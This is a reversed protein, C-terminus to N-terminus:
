SDLAAEQQLLQRLQKVRQPEQQSLERQEYPDDNLNFLEVKGGRSVILKWGDDILCSGGPVKWYLRRPQDYKQQQGSLLPWINQGDLPTDQKINVGAVALLTPLWDVAAVPQKLAQPKLKGPWSVLGPVRVGGEYLEVKWGRLPENNGLVPNPGLRGGYDTKSNWSKQGGNDSTFVILTNERQGIRELAEVMQGIAADMHTVSAAYDRRSPDTIKGEYLATWKEPEQVPYHPVSFAVWLFFPKDRSSEIVRVAEAAILDTAHGEEDIFEDNRHWTRDGNKYIHEYQDLQGHLYGYSSDFGYQRPGVEPRLGLHWKGTIATTYGAGNLAAALNLAERPLAKTSRGGIPSLIGFRSPYRGTLIAARTPSCSPSVYNRDLRVGAAALRDLNPTLIESGNYGIDNFGQDDAIILLINPRKADKEAATTQESAAALALGVGMVVALLRWSCRAESRMSEGEKLYAQLNRLQWLAYAPGGM